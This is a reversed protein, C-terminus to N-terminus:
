DSSALPYINYQTIGCIGKQKGTYRLLKFHGKVGWDPGWSNRVNWYKVGSRTEGYGVIVIAHNISTSCTKKDFVGSSYFSLEGADVASPVVTNQLAMLIHDNNHKEIKVYGSLLGKVNRQTDFRCIRNETGVYPYTSALQIGENQIVYDYSQHMWGGRCGTNGHGKSCDVLEQESLRVKRGTKLYYMHELSTITAFAYCSGCSGQHVVKNMSDLEHWDKNLPMNYIPGFQLTRHTTPAPSEENKLDGLGFHAAQIEEPTKDAFANLGLKFSLEKNNTEEIYVFNKAFVDKRYNDEAPTGYLKRNQAKWKAYTHAIKMGPDQITFQLNNQQESMSRFVSGATMVALLSLLIRSKM